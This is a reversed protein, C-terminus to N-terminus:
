SQTHHLLNLKLPFHLLIFVIKGRESKVRSSYAWSCYGVQLM